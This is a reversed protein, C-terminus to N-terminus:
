TSASPRRRALRLAIPTLLATWLVPYGMKIAHIEDSSGNIAPFWAITAYSLPLAGAWALLLLIPSWRSMPTLWRDAMAPIAIGAGIGALLLQLGPQGGFRPPVGGAFLEFMSWRALAFAACSVLLGGVIFKARQRWGAGNGVSYSSIAMILLCIPLASWNFGSLWGLGTWGKLWLVEGLWLAWAGVAGAIVAVIPVVPAFNRRRM